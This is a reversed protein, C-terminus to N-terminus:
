RINHLYTKQFYGEGYGTKLIRGLKRWYDPFEKYFTRSGAVSKNRYEELSEYCRILKMKKKAAPTIDVAFDPHTRSFVQYFFIRKPRYSNYRNKVRSMGSYFTSHDALVSAHQHEINPEAQTPAIILGPRLRRIKDIIAFQNVQSNEYDHPLHICGRWKLHLLDASKGIEAEPVPVEGPPGECLDMIGIAQGEDALKIALGGAGCEADGPFPSVLLVDLRM